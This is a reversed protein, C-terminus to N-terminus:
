GTAELQTEVQVLAEDNARFIPEIPVGFEDAVETLLTAWRRDADSIAGKGPRTLLLALTTDVKLGDLVDVLATM